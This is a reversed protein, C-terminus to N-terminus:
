ELYEWGAAAAMHSQVDVQSAQLGVAQLQHLKLTGAYSSDPLSPVPPFKELQRMVLIAKMTRLMHQITQKGAPDTVWYCTSQNSESTSM